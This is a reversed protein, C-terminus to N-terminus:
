DDDGVEKCVYTVEYRPPDSLMYILKTTGCAYTTISNSGDMDHYASINEEVASAGCRPCKPTELWKTVIM